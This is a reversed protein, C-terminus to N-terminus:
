EEESFVEKWEADSTGTIFLEREALSLSSFVSVRHNILWDDIEPKTIKLIHNSIRGSIDSRFTGEVTNDDIREIALLAM